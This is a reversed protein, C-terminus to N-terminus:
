SCSCIQSTQLLDLDLDRSRLRSDRDFGHSTGRTVRKAKCAIAKDNALLTTCASPTHGRTLVAVAWSHQTFCQHACPSLLGHADVICCVPPQGTRCVEPLDHKLSMYSLRQLCSDGQKKAVCRLHTTTAHSVVQKSSNSQQQTNSQLRESCPKANQQAVYTHM